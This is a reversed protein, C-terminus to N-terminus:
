REIFKDKTKIEENKRATLEEDIVELDKTQTNLKRLSM